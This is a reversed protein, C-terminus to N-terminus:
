RSNYDYFQENMKRRMAISPSSNQVLESINPNAQPIVIVRQPTPQKRFRWGFGRESLPNWSWRMDPYDDPNASYRRRTGWVPNGQSDVLPQNDAFRNFVWHSPKWRGWPNQYHDAIRGLGEAGLLGGATLTTLPQEKALYKPLKLSAKAAVPIAKSTGRAVSRSARWLNKALSRVLDATKLGREEQPEDERQQLATPLPVAKRSPILNLEEDRRKALQLQRIKKLAALRHKQAAGQYGNYTGALGGAVGATGLLALYWELLSAEKVSPAHEECATIFEDLVSGLKSWQENKLAEEYLRVASQRKKKLKRKALANGIANVGAYGTGLGLLSVGLMGPVFWPVNVLSKAHDGRITGPLDAYREQEERLAQGGPFLGTASNFVRAAPNSSEVGDQGNNGYYLGAATGGLGLTGLGAAILKTTTSGTKQSADEEQAIYVPIPLLAKAQEEDLLSKENKRRIMMMLAAAGGLGTAALATQKLIGAADRQPQTKQFPALWQGATNRLHQPVSQLQEVVSM